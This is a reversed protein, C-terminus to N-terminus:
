ARRSRGPGRPSQTASRGSACWPPGAAARCARPAARSFLPADPRHARRTLLDARGPGLARVTCLIVLGALDLTSQRDYAGIGGGNFGGDGARAQSAGSTWSSSGGAATGGPRRSWCNGPRRRAGPPGAARQLKRLRPCRGLTPRRRPTSGGGAALRGTPGSRVPAPVTHMGTRRGAERDSDRARTGYVPRRGLRSPRLIRTGEGSRLDRATGRDREVRSPGRLTGPPGTCGGPDSFGLRAPGPRALTGGAGM